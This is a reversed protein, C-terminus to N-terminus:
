PRNRDTHPRGHTHPPHVAIPDSAPFTMEIADDIMEEELAADFAADAAANRERKRERTDKATADAPSVDKPTVSRSQDGRSSASASVDEHPRSATREVTKNRNSM